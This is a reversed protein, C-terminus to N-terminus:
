GSYKDNYEGGLSEHKKDIKARFAKDTAWLVLVARLFKSFKDYYSEVDTMIPVEDPRIYAVKQTGKTKTAM